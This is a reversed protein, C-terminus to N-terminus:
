VGWTVEVKKKSAAHLMDLLPFARQAFGVPQEMKPLPPDQESTDPPAVAHEVALQLAALAAPVQESTIIGQETMEKGIAALVRQAHERLMYFEGAAPCRFVILNKLTSIETCLYFNSFHLSVIVSEGLLTLIM